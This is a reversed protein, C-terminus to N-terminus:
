PPGTAPVPLRTQAAPWGPDAGDSLHGLLFASSRRRLDNFFRVGSGGYMIIAINIEDWFSKLTKAARLRRSLETPRVRPHEPANISFESLASRIPASSPPEALAV